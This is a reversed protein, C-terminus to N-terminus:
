DKKRLERLDGRRLTFGERDFLELLPICYKRTSGLVNKADSATMTKAAELHERLKRRADEVSEGAPLQITNWGSSIPSWGTWGRGSPRWRPSLSRPM